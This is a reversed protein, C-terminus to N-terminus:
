GDLQDVSQPWDDKLIRSLSRDALIKGETQCTPCYNTENAAYVIRQIPASCTPCPKGFRGHAAMEDRFATVKEPFRDGVDDRLREIWLQLTQQTARFLRSIEEDTLRSTWRVPSLQAAHLIEDSYANGIGSFLQPDTLARKLTHNESVLLRRFTAEDATLVDLGPRQHVKLNDRGRVVHLSSRKKTGAETMMLVGSDFGFAILDVKSRPQAAPKKWHFRGAIMLHFVLYLDDALEWVIRKVLRHFGRIRKGEAEFVDPEVSRVVFPSRIVIKEITKGGVFRGLAEIYITVDPLEPM